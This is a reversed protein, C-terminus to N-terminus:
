PKLMSQGVLDEHQVAAAIVQKKTSSWTFRKVLLNQLM